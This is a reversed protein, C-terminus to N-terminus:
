PLELVPLELVPQELALVNWAFLGCEDNLANEHQGDTDLTPSITQTSRSGLSV